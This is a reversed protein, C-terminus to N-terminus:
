KIGVLIDVEANNPNQAKEGYIEFDVTYARNLDMNWIKFWQNIILGEELNGKVSMKQYEGGNFSKGIMDEPIVDLNKVKCGIITTYPQTHNGEYNTYLCYITNNIKNPINDLINKSMFTNWLKPIDNAARQNANSTRIAIGIIKFSEIKINQM